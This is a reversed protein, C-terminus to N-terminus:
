TKILRSTVFHGQETVSREIEYVDTFKHNKYEYYCYFYYKGDMPKAWDWSKIITSASSSPLVAGVTQDKNAKKFSVLKQDFGLQCNLGPLSGKNTITIDLYYPARYARASPHFIIEFWPRNLLVFQQRTQLLGILVFIVLFVNVITSGLIIFPEYENISINFFEEHFM